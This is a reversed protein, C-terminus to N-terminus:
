LFTKLFEYFLEQTTLTINGIEQTWGDDTLFYKNDGIFQAFGISIDISIEAAKNTSCVDTFNLNEDRVSYRMFLGHNKDFYDILKNM